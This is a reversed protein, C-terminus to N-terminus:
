KRKFTVESNQAEFASPEKELTKLESGFSTEKDALRTNVTNVSFKDREQDTLNKEIEKDKLDLHRSNLSGKEEVATENQHFNEKNLM